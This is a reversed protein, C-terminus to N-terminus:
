YSRQAVLLAFSFFYRDIEEPSAFSSDGSFLRGCVERLRLLERLRTREHQVAITADLLDFAREWSQQAAAGDGRQQWSLARHVESGINALQEPLSRTAWHQPIFVRTM